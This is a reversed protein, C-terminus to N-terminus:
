GFSFFFGCVYPASTSGDSFTCHDDCVIFPGYSTSTTGTCIGGGAIFDRDRVNFGRRRFEFLMSNVAGPGGALESVEEPSCGENLCEEQYSAYLENVEEASCGESLCEELYNDVQRGSSKGAQSKPPKSVTVFLFVVLLPTILYFILKRM